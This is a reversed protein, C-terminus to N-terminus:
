MGVLKKMIAKIKFINKEIKKFLLKKGDHTDAEGAYRLDTVTVKDGALPFDRGPVVNRIHYDTKNAGTVGTAMAAVAHDIILRAVKDAMGIPGAFGVKAATVREITAEDALDAHAGALTQTLKEPNLDHDGRVLVLVLVIAAVPQYYQESRM